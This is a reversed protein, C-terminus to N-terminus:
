RSKHRENPTKAYLYLFRRSKTPVHGMGCDVMDAEEGEVDVGCGSGVAWRAGEPPRRVLRERSRAALEAVRPAPPRPLASALAAGLVAIRRDAAQDEDPDGRGRKSPATEPVAPDIAIAKALTRDTAVLVMWPEGNLPNPVIRRLEEMGAVVVEVLALPALQADTGHNLLEGFASGRAYKGADSAPNVIVLLPVRAREARRFAAAVRAAGDSCDSECPAAFVLRRPLALAAATAAVFHRRKM